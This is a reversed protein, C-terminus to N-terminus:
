SLEKAFLAAGLAGVIQPEHPTKISVGILEELAKVVGINKAVGGSMVVEQDIGVRKVLAVARKAVSYNIGKIIKEKPVGESILTIIESEAFVTCINTIDVYDSTKLHIEGFEDFSVQLVKSMIELFRGTGAACKDNMVFDLVAGNKGIKIVKSDQGGIDIVTRADPFLFNIGKAHCSIETKSKDTFDVKIRGYGTAVISNIDKLSINHTKLLDDILDLATKNGDSGTERIAYGLINDKTGNSSLLVVKTTASGIDVGLFYKM